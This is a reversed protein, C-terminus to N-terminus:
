NEGGEEDGTEESESVSQPPVDRFPVSEGSYPNEVSGAAGAYDLGGVRLNGNALDYFCATSAYIYVRVLFEPLSSLFGKLSYMSDNVLEVIIQPNRFYSDSFREVVKVGIFGQPISALAAWGIFGLLLLFYNMKNGSMMMTSQLLCERPSKYPDDALIYPAMSYKIAAIIGPIIFLLSWLFIRLAMNLYLILAKSFNNFGYRLDAIEAPRQRFLKLFYHAVGLVVPGSIVINYISIIFGLAQVNLAGALYSPLSTIAWAVLMLLFAELWKGKLAQRALARIMRGGERVIKFNAFNYNLFRNEM